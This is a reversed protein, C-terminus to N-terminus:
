GNLLVSLLQCPASLLEPQPMQDHDPVGPLQSLFPGCGTFSGALLICGLNQHPNSGMRSARGVPTGPNIPPDLELIARASDIAKCAERGGKYAGDDAM